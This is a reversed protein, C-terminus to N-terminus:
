LGGQLDFAADTTVGTELVGEGECGMGGSGEEGRM